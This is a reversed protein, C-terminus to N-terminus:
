RATSRRCWRTPSAKPSRRRKSRPRRRISTPRISGCSPPTRPRSRRPSRRCRRRTSRASSTPSRARGTRGRDRPGADEPVRRVQPDSRAESRGRAGGADQVAERRRVALALLAPHLARPRVGPGQARPRLRGGRADRAPQRLFRHRRGLRRAPRPVLAGPALHRRRRDASRGAGLDRLRQRRGPVAGAAAQRLRRQASGLVRRRQDRRRRALRLHDRRGQIRARSRRDHTVRSYIVGAEAAGVAQLVQTGTPSSGSVINFATHGWHSPMQRGGSAPDDKAGVAALLMELPTVGLQLCLARDRYYPYFWDYGPRLTLGAAALMAEHGAGSIQFFIQSQSKLQIEKDDLKRSMLM